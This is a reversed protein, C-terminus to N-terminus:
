QKFNEELQPAVNSGTEISFKLVEKYISEVANGTAFNDIKNGSYNSLLGGGIQLVAQNFNKPIQIGKDREAYNFNFTEGVITPGVGPIASSGVEIVNIKSIDGGNAIGQSLANLAMGTVATKGTVTAYGTLEAALFSEVAPSAMVLPALYATGALTGAVIACVKAASNTADHIAQTQKILAPQYHQAYYYDDFNKYDTGNHKNYQELTPRKRDDINKWNILSYNFSAPRNSKDKGVLYIRPLMVIKEPDTGEFKGSPDNWMVPNNFAFRYPSLSPMIDTMVDMVNFRGITPDYQRFDMATVNLGLEDQWERHNFKYNYDPQANNMNYGQHKLGFPYYHNEELIPSSFYDNCIEVGSKPSTFCVVTHEMGLVGNGDTDSYSLRVNGLHDMYNFVYKFTPAVRCTPCSEPIVYKVYGEPHPFFQLENNKYQFGGALYHTNTINSNETVKKNIRQGTANYLYDIQNGSEFLINTPLNLHNYTIMDIAKNKDKTMNGNDDYEYDDGITNGDKFGELSTTNDIVQKLLNKNDMDYTYVLADMHIAYSADDIVGCRSLSQINGNKDYDITERYANTATTENVRKYNADLLRNLNDYSYNYKRLKNDDATKWYTESINGNFLATAEEPTNYNIKFSFLDNGINEVDNIAKLWGRINYSYDVTQLGIAGTADQGGVNKSILQGLEDYTNKAILQESGGNIQQKHLSLRDQDTYEYTDKITIFIGNPDYKHTTITYETKGAWDLKSDVQTYGGLHNSTYARVPRYRDDYLTYATEAANANNVDLVKTWSGTPLGKLNTALDQGEIQTPLPSPANPYTYDDYYNKTLILDDIALAFPNSGTNISNQNSGRTATSVTMQKWGTQIVRGFVDYETVLWGVATGGYPTFVPGTAVPRDLKDYVIFEWQKGPLKKEVLRNKNDYKYQYGLNEIASFHVVNSYTTTTGFLNVDLPKSLSQSIGPLSTFYTQPNDPIYDVFFLKNNEIKVIFQHNGNYNVDFYGLIMNPIPAIANIEFKKTLDFTSQVGLGASFNLSIVSNQIDISMSGGGSTVPNGSADILFESIYFSQHLVYPTQISQVSAINDAALPPVVYILNGVADYIYYTDHKENNSYARKLVVKGLDNKYEETTNDKGSTWNENKIINKYLTNANYYGICDVTYSYGLTTTSFTRDVQFRFVEDDIANLDYDFKMEHGSGLKWSDGPSAQKLIKSLPSLEFEKESFPATTTEFNPNSNSSYYSSQNTQAATDFDLSTSKVYPLFEKSQRGLEDYQTHMVIDNGTASQKYAIKQIPRGLGDIYNIQIIADAPNTIDVVGQSTPKKYVITKIYNKDQSQSFTILPVIICLLVIIRNKKISFKYNFFTFPLIKIMKNNNKIEKKM